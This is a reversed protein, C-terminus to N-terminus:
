NRSAVLRRYSLSTEMACIDVANTRKQQNHKAPSAQAGLSLVVCDEPLPPDAPFPLVSLVPPEDPFPPVVLLPPEVPFPPVVLAPPEPLPPLPLLPPALLPPVVPFPPV